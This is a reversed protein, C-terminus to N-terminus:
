SAIPEGFEDLQVWDANETINLTELLRELEFRKFKGTEIALMTYEDLWRGAGVKDWPANKDEVFLYEHGSITLNTAPLVWYKNGLKLNDLLIYSKNIQPTDFKRIKIYILNAWDDQDRVVRDYSHFGTPRTYHDPLYQANYTTTYEPYFEDLEPNYGSPKEFSVNYAGLYM